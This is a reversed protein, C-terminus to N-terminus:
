GGASVAAGAQSVGGDEAAETGEVPSGPPWPADVHLAGLTLKGDPGGVEWWVVQGPEFGRRQQMGRPLEPLDM